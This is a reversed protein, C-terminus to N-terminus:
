IENIYQTRIDEHIRMVQGLYSLSGFALIIDTKNAEAFAHKVAIEISAEARVPVNTDQIASGMCNQAPIPDEAACYRKMVGALEEAPLTRATDPLSVTHVSRALPAMIGAIKEYEKDKFVGMIYIFRRGPFYAELSERLKKAAAENHAGDILFLPNRTLCTLRGPWVTKSLGKRLADPSVPYGLTGLM